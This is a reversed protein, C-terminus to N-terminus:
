NRCQEIWIQPLCKLARESPVFRNRPREGQTDRYVGFDDKGAVGTVRLWPFTAIAIQIANKFSKPHQLRSQRM